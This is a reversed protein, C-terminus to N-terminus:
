MKKLDKEAKTLQLYSAELMDPTITKRDLSAICLSGANQNVLLPSAKKIKENGYNKIFEDAIDGNVIINEDYNLLEEALESTSIIRDDCLRSIKGNEFRFVANYVLDLRAKMVPCIIGEFGLMNYALSELTSIGSCEVNLAFAMAKVAAIGIRLGTYSGPGTSVAIREVDEISKGCDELLKKCLPMIVQSHTLNTNVSVIGKIVDDESLAVSAIKGSTDIGLILM